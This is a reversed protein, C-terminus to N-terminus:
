LSESLSYLLHLLFHFPYAPSHLFLVALAAHELVRLFDPAAEGAALTSDSLCCASWIRRKDARALRLASGLVGRLAVASACLEKGPLCRM